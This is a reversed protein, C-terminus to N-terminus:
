QNKRRKKMLRQHGFVGFVNSALPLNRQNEKMRRNKKKMRQKKLKLMLMKLRMVRQKKNGMSFPRLRPTSIKMGLKLLQKRRMKNTM